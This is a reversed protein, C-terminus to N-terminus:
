PRRLLRNVAQGYMRRSASGLLPDAASPLPRVRLEERWIVRARGGPGPRVEIEAWGRVIRGRKELRCLGPEDGVPPCWVTVEMRDDVALPGVGTRAVFVTGERTPPPTVVTVRTLPVVDGHRHWETLRRWAEELPLPVTRELQFTVM